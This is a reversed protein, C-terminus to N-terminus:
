CTFEDYGIVCKERGDPNGNPFDRVAANPIRDVASDGLYIFRKTYLGM